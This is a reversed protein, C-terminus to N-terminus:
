NLKDVCNSSKEEEFIFIYYEQAPCFNREMRPFYWIDESLQTFYIQRQTFSIFSKPM